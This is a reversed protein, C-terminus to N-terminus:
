LGPRTVDMLDFGNENWEWVAVDRNPSYNPGTCVGRVYPCTTRVVQGTQVMM